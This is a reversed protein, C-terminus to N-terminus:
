AEHLRTHKQNIHDMSRLYLFNFSTSTWLNPFCQPTLYLLSSVQCYSYLYIQKLASQFPVYVSFSFDGPVGIHTYVSAWVALTWQARTTAFVSCYAM